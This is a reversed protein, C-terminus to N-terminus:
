IQLPVFVIVGNIKRAVKKHFTAEAYIKEKNRWLAFTSELWKNKVAVTVPKNGAELWNLVGKHWLYLGFLKAAEKEHTAM